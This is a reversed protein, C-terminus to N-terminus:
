TGWKASSPAARRRPRRRRAARDPGAVINEFNVARVAVQDLAEQRGDGGLPGVGIAARQVPANTQRGFPGLPHARFQGAAPGQNEGEARHVALAPAPGPPLPDPARTAPQKGRVVPQYNQLAVNPEDASFGAVAITIRLGNSTVQEINYPPYGDGGSKALRDLTREVQDFGLLFPSDFLSIRPM